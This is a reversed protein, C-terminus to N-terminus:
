LIPMGRTLPSRTKTDIFCPIFRDPPFIRWPHNFLFQAPHANPSRMHREGATEIAPSGVAIVWRPYKCDIAPMQPSERGAGGVSVAKILQARALPMLGPPPQFKSAASVLSTM